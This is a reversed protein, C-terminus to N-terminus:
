CCLRECCWWVCYVVVCCGIVCWVFFVGWEFLVYVGCVGLFWMVFWSLVSLVCSM